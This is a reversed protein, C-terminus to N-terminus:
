KYKVQKVRIIGNFARIVRQRLKTEHYTQRLKTRSVIHHLTTQTGVMGRERVCARVCVCVCVYVCVCMALGLMVLSSLRVAAHAVFGSAEHHEVAGHAGANFSVWVLLFFFALERV